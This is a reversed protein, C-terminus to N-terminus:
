KKWIEWWKRPRDSSETRARARPKPEPESEFYEVEGEKFDRFGGRKKGKKPKKADSKKIKSRKINRRVDAAESGDPGIAVMQMKKGKSFVDVLLVAEADVEKMAKRFAKGSRGRKKSSRLDSESLGADDAARMFKKSSLTKIDDSADLLGDFTKTVKAGGTKSVDVLVVRLPDQQAFAPACVLAIAIFTFLFLGIRRMIREQFPSPHM